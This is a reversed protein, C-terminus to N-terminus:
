DFKSKAFDYYDKAAQDATMEGYIVKEIILKYYDQIEQSPAPSIPNTEGVEYSGILNVFENVKIQEPTLDPELAKIVNNFISMGRENALIKNAEADGWFFSLFKAAEVPNKSDTSISFMQSSQIASGAPGDKTRRPMPVLKLERGAAESLAIFQNSAVWTMAAEGTVLFDGEIDKIEAIAGPDPYGGSATLDARMQIYDVLLTYDDFGLDDNTTAYFNYDLGYQPIGSGCGAAFDDFKSSGYIDLKEKFTNCIEAYEDWTWGEQPEPIGAEAFLAPDYAVGYTNVGNSVGVQIGNYRTTKLFADTTNSTDITGDAILDNLPYIKSLYAPFNGGMQMIDWCDDSAVLTNLKQFYGDFDLFEYQITVHPNLEQYMEIVAITKDHRAQSGWWAMRLTVPEPAVEVVPEDEKDDTAEPAKTAVPKDDKKDTEEAQNGKCAVLAFMTSVALILVMIRRLKM